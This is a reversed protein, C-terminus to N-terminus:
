ALEQRGQSIEERASLDSAKKVATGKCRHFGEYDRQKDVILRELQWMILVVVWLSLVSSSWQVNVGTPCVPVDIMSQNFHERSDVDSIENGESRQDFM